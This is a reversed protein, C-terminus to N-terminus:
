EGGECWVRGVGPVERVGVRGIKGRENVVSWSCQGKQQKKLIYDDWVSEWNTKTSTRRQRQLEEKHPESQESQWISESWGIYFIAEM